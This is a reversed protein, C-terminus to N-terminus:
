RTSLPDRTRELSLPQPINLTEELSLGKWQMATTESSLGGRDAQLPKRRSLTQQKLKSISVESPKTKKSPTPRVLQPSSEGTQPSQSAPKSDSKPPSQHSITQTSSESKPPGQIALEPESKTTNDQADMTSDTSREVVQEPKTPYPQKQDETSPQKQDTEEKEKESMLQLLRPPPRINSNYWLARANPSVFTSVAPGTKPKEEEESGFPWRLPNWVIEAVLNHLRMPMIPKMVQLFIRNMVGPTNLLDGRLMARVGTEAVFPPAKTYFPINWCLAQKAKSRSRFETDRVAGPVLITVGVGYPEMEKALSIGFSNEFAKTASYVAVSAIGSVAGCVSSVMLIRGRRREKMDRGFLHTLTSVSVANLQIM